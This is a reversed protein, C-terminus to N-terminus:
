LFSVAFWQDKGCLQSGVWTQKFYRALLIGISATGIWATIMFAGHLRLFLKSSAGIVSVDALYQPSGSAIRGIDHYGVSNETIAFFFIYFKLLTDGSIFWWFISTSILISYMRKLSSGSAVLLHYKNNILDFTNGYVNSRPERMIKCYIVGDEYSAALLRIINQPQNFLILM